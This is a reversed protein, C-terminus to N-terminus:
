TGADLTNLEIDIDGAMVGLPFAIFSPTQTAVGANSGPATCCHIHAATTTGILGSFEGHVVLTNADPDITVFVFGTAPSTNQPFENTGAFTGVLTIPVAFLAPAWLLALAALWRAALRTM